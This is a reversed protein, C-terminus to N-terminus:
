LQLMVGGVDCEGGTVCRWRLGLWEGGRGVGVGEGTRGLGWKGESRGELRLGAIVVSKECVGSVVWEM